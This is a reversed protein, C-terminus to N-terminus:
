IIDEESLELYDVYRKVAEENCVKKIEIICKSIKKDNNDIIEVIKNNNQNQREKRINKLDLIKAM